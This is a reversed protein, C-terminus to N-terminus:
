EGAMFAAADAIYHQVVVPTDVFYRLEGATSGHSGSRFHDVDVAYRAYFGNCAWYYRVSKVVDMNNDWEVCACSPEGLLSYVNEASARGGNEIESASAMSRVASIPCETFPTENETPNYASIGEFMNGYDDEVIIADFEEPYCIEDGTSMGSVRLSVDDRLDLAQRYASEFDAWSLSSSFPIEFSIPEGGSYAFIYATNANSTQGFGALKIFQNGSEAPMEVAVGGHLTVIFEPANNSGDDHKGWNPFDFNLVLSDEKQGQEPEEPETSEAPEDADPPGDPLNEDAPMIQSPDSPVDQKTDDKGGCAALTLAIAVAVALAFLKKM